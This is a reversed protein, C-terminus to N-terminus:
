REVADEWKELHEDIEERFRVPNIGRGVALRVFGDEPDNLLRQLAFGRYETISAHSAHGPARDAQRGSSWASRRGPRRSLAVAL